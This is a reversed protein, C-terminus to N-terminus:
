MLPDQGAYPDSLGLSALIRTELAEMEEAEDKELHDYGFLHLFGHVLLHTLHDDFTKDLDVAEREVTERAVVIDGLMPGPMGGPELPFAPFSLVNTPKDMGRWEANIEQISDDNTFVLSLEPAMKPFPQEEERALYDAAAGLVRSALSTLVAEDPWGGDEVSIQLDLEPM